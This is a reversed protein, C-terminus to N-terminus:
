KKSPRWGNRMFDIEGEIAEQIVLALAHAMDETNLDPEDSLFTKALELCRPDYTKPIAM